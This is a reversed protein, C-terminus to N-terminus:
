RRRLEGSDARRTVGDPLPEGGLGAATARDCIARVFSRGGPGVAAARQGRSCLTRGDPSFGIGSLGAEPGSLRVEAADPEALSRVVLGDDVDYGLKGGRVSLMLGGINEDADVELPGLVAIRVGQVLGGRPPGDVDEIGPQYRALAANTGARAVVTTSM